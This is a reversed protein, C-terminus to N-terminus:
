TGARSFKRKKKKPNKKMLELLQKEFEKKDTHQSLYIILADNPEYYRSNDLILPGSLGKHTFLLSGCSNLIRKDGRWLSMKAAPFNIGAFAQWVFKYEGEIDPAVLTPIFDKTKIDKLLKIIDGTSGTEPYSAGGTCLVLYKTRLTHTIDNNTVEISIFDNTIELIKSLCHNIKYEIKPTIANLIDSAKLSEPFVKLDDRILIDVGLKEFFRILDNNSLTNFANKLFKGNEGYHGYFEKMEGAHTFNCQGNGSLLLKQGLCNTKELLLVKPLDQLM